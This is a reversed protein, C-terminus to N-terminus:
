LICIKNFGAMRAKKLKEIEDFVQLMPVAVAEAPPSIGLDSVISTCSAVNGEKGKQDM